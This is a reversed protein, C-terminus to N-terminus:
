ISRQDRLTLDMALEDRSSKFIDLKVNSHRKKLDNSNFM